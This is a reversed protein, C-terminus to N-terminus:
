EQIKTKFPGKLSTTIVKKDFSFRRVQSGPQSYDCITPIYIMWSSVMFLVNCRDLMWSIWDTEIMLRINTQFGM